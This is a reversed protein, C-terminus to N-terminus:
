MAALLPVDHAVASPRFTEDYLALWTGSGTIGYVLATHSVERSEPSGEASIDYARWVPELEARSGILYDMRGTMGHKALFAKVTRRTDGRPDVSVAVIQMRKAGAGLRGQAQRLKDVILPCTDPCHDYIFTMLVAKGRFGSLRVEQGNWNRLAIEPAPRPPQLQGPAALQARSANSATAPTGSGGGAGCGAAVMAAAAAFATLTLRPATRRRTRMPRGYCRCPEQACMGTLGM